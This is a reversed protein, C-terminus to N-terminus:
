EVLRGILQNNLFVEIEVFQGTSYNSLRLEYGSSNPGWHVINSDLNFIRPNVLAINRFGRIDGNGSLNVDFVVRENNRFLINNTIIEEYNLFYRRQLNIPFVLNYSNGTPNNIVFPSGNIGSSSDEGCSIFIFIFLLKFIIKNM